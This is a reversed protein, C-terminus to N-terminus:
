IQRPIIELYLKTIVTMITYHLELVVEYDSDNDNLTIRPCSFTLRINPLICHLHWLFPCYNFQYFQNTIAKKEKKGM